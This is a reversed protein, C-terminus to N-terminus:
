SWGSCPLSCCRPRRWADCLPSCAATRRGQQLHALSGLPQARHCRPRPPVAVRSPRGQRQLGLLQRCASRTRPSHLRTQRSPGARAAAAPPAGATAAAARGVASQSPMPPTKASTAAHLRRPTQHLLGWLAPQQRSSSMPMCQFWPPAAPPSAPRHPDRSQKAVAHPVFACALQHMPLACPSLAPSAQVWPLLRHVPESNVAPLAKRAAESPRPQPLRPPLNGVAAWDRGFARSSQM